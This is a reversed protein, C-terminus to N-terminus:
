HAEAWSSGTGIDVHVPVALPYANEMEHRVLAKLEDIEDFAAEFVLEDHVQLVMRSKMGALHEHIKVMALKIVDAASGQIPTNIAIRRAGERENFNSSVIEPISRRRGMITTVFGDKETSRAIGEMYARVGPYKALYNDIYRKAMDRRIGLE